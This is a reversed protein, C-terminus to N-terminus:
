RGAELHRAFHPVDNLCFPQLQVITQMTAMLTQEQYDAMENQDLRSLVIVCNM